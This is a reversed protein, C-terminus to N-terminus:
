HRIEPQWWCNEVHKPLFFRCRRSGNLGQHKLVATFLWNVALCLKIYWLLCPPQSFGHFVEWRIQFFFFTWKFVTRFIQTPLVPNLFLLPSLSSCKGISVSKISWKSPNSGLLVIMFNQLHSLGSYDSFGMGVEHLVNRGQLNVTPVYDHLNTLYTEKRFPHNTHEMDIKWPASM